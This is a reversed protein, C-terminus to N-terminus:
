SDSDTYGNNDDNGIYGGIGRSSTQVNGSTNTYLNTMSGLQAKQTEANYNFQHDTAATAKPIMNSALGTLATAAVLAQLANYAPTTAFDVPTKKTNMLNTEFNFRFTRPPKEVPLIGM